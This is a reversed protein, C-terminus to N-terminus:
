FEPLLKYLTIDMILDMKLLDRAHWQFLYEMLLSEM